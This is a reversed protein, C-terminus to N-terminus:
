AAVVHLWSERCKQSQLGSGHAVFRIKGDWRTSNSSPPSGGQRRLFLQLPKVGRAPGKNTGASQDAVHPLCGRRSRSCGGHAAHNASCYETNDSTRGTRPLEAKGRAAAADHGDRVSHRSKRTVRRRPLGNWSPSRMVERALLWPCEEGDGGRWFGREGDQKQAWGDKVYMWLCLM